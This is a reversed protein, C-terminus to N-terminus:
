GRSVADLALGAVFLLGFLTDLKATLADAADPVAVRFARVLSVAQPVSLLVLLVWPSLLGAAIAIMTYAYAAVIFAVFLDLGRSRGLETGLTRIGTEHDQEADRLNNAFLVLAM